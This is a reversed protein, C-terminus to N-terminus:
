ALIWRENVRQSIHDRKGRAPWLHHRNMVNIIQSVGSAAGRYAPTCKTEKDLSRDLTRVLHDRYRLKGAALDDPVHVDRTVLDLDNMEGSTFHLISRGSWNRRGLNLSVDSPGVDHREATEARVLVDTAKNCREALDRRRHRMRENEHAVHRLLIRGTGLDLGGSVIADNEGPVKRVSFHLAQHLVRRQESKRGEIFPESHRDDVCLM